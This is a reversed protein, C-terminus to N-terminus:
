PAAKRRASSDFVDTTGIQIVPFSFMGGLPDSSRRGPVTRTRRSGDMAQSSYLSRFANANLFLTQCIMSSSNDTISSLAPSAFELHCNVFGLYAGFVLNWIEFTQYKDKPLQFKNSM